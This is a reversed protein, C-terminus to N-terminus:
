NKIRFDVLTGFKSKVFRTVFESIEMGLEESDSEFPIEVWFEDYVLFSIFSNKLELLKELELVTENFIDSASGQIVRNVAKGSFNTEEESILIENGGVTTVFGNERAEISVLEKFQKVYDSFKKLFIPYNKNMPVFGGNILKNVITKAVNREIGEISYIDKEPIEEPSIIFNRLLFEFFIRPEFQAFDFKLFKFGPSASIRRIKDEKSLIQLGPEKYTVRNTISGIQIKPFVKVRDFIIGREQLRCLFREFETQQKPEEKVETKTPILKFMPKELTPKPVELNLIELCEQCKKLNYNSNNEALSGYILIEKIPKQFEENQYFDILEAYDERAYIILMKEFDNQCNEPLFYKLIQKRVRVNKDKLGFYLVEKASESKLGNKVVFEFNELAFEFWIREEKPIVFEMSDLFFATQLRIEKEKDKLLPLFLNLDFNEQNYADEFFQDLCLKKQEYDEIKLIEVPNM